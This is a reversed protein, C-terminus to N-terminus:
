NIDCFCHSYVGRPDNFRTIGALIKQLQNAFTAIPAPAAVFSAPNLGASKAVTLLDVIMQETPSLKREITKRGFEGETLQALEAAITVAEDLGGLQDVLGNELADRGTWVQGQGIADVAQKDMGRREAVNSIFDDYVNEVIMQILQRAQEPLALDPRVAPWPTTAVGDTAIGVANMTRQFTPVMGFVGISGTVTAPSALVRDAVVSIWYGGSAAVSGMSAVVPKGAQQLAQIQQAIVESAFVSGGPSDVRLVVAKVTDDTLAERLLAATSDGGVTGPPQSGDLIEGAAIIIAVNEDDPKSGHLLRMQDLYENMGVSAYTSADEKDEGAYEQLKERLETRSLLADVLGNDHAALAMDGNAAGVKAVMNQAYDDIAGEPLGRAAVVDQQYMTWFQSILNTRSARDEPSMDMRTYPEVFSKHTGVRFVNWDIRLHEIADRYYNRYGGYGQLFVLGQPHLYLEDAHAALYYGAQAFVDASAIVPKGSERFSEIAEAVRQLKNLGGGALASLELHVATVRDDTRAYELADLVDQVLTQTQVEGLLEALARDYPNGALQEVLAGTPQIVLAAKQPLIPPAGGSIVGFFVAFVVLLLLLHLVKRVGNAGRWLASILRVFVNRESM